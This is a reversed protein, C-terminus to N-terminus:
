NDADALMTSLLCSVGLLELSCNLADRFPADDFGLWSQSKALLQRLEDQQRQLSEVRRTAELEERARSLMAGRDSGPADLALLQQELARTDDIDIGGELVEDVQRQVLPSLSGLERRIV